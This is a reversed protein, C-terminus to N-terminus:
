TDGWERPAWVKDGNSLSLLTLTYGYNECALKMERAVTDRHAHEVWTGLSIQDGSHCSTISWNMFGDLYQGCDRRYLTRRNWTM